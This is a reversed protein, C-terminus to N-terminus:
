ARVPCILRQLNGSLVDVLDPVLVKLDQVRSRAAIMIIVPIPLENTNPRLEVGGDVTILADFRSAAARRLLDGNTSGARGMM